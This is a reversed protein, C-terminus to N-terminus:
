ESGPVEGEEDVSPNAPLKFWKPRYEGPQYNAIYDLADQPTPAIHFLDLSGLKMFEEDIARKLQELLPDYYGNTNLLVIAKNHFGLQKNTVIEFFEELTGYGGPLAIFADAKLEMQAKRERMGDTVILESLHENALGLQRLTAPIVGVTYGDEERVAASVAGMLGVHTGGYVLLAGSRAMLRGLERAAEFYIPAVVSSSSCYITIAKGKLKAITEDSM